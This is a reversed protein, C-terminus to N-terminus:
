IPCLFLHLSPNYDMYICFYLLLYSFLKNQKKVNGRQEKPNQRDTLDM